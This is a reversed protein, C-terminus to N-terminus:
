LADMIVGMKPVGMKPFSWISGGLTGRKESPSCGWHGLALRDHWAVSLESSALHWAAFCSWVQHKRRLVLFSGAVDIQQEFDM